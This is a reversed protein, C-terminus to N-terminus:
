NGQQQRAMMKEKWLEFTVVILRQGEFVIQVPAPFREAATELTAATVAGNLDHWAAETLIVTQVYRRRRTDYLRTIYFDCKLPFSRATHM